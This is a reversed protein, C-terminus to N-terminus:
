PQADEITKTDAEAKAAEKRRIEEVTKQLEEWEPLLPLDSDSTTLANYKQQQLQLERISKYKEATAGRLTADDRIITPRIFVLLNTKQVSTSQSRFLHGLIPISGLIPVKTVRQIVNDRILGGLVVTEGNSVTVRTEIRRENTVIDAAGPVPPAISSVEQVIELSVKGGENIQPTVELTTGVNDRNITQFPNQFSTGGGTGGGNGGGTGTFGGTVFPVSSGVTITAKHNDTTLLNPTSLINTDSDSKLFSILALFDSTDTLRGVGIAQGTLGALAGALGTLADDDDNELASDAIQGLIGPTITGDFNSAFGGDQNRYVWQIGLNKANDAAIEVIIAEVLVQARQIDLRAIVDKLSNLTDIDATIILANTDAEAVIGANSEPANQEEPNLKAKNQIIATLVEAVQAADAYELYIVQVNGSQPQPQDLREILDKIRNRQREEGTVLVSNSRKDAVIQLQTGTAAQGAPEQNRQIQTLIRVLEDADAHELRVMETEPVAAQDVREILQRIRAVNAATDVMIIVNSGAYATMHAGQASLPRIVPLIQTAAINNLQIVETIYLDADDSNANGFPVPTSRVENKNIVRVVGDVENATFGHIDLVALFLAYLQRENVPTSSMITIQGKVRPDIVITKGTATQIFKIVELIDADKYNPTWPGNQSPQQAIVNASLCLIVLGISSYFRLRLLYRIMFNRIAQISM